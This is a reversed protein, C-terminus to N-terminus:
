QRNYVRTLEQRTQQLRQIVIGATRKLLFYGLEHNTDCEKRLAEGHLFVAKVATVARADFRWYYPPFLWSWGLVEGGGLTQLRVRNNDTDVSELVVDGSQILYFRNAPDGERFIWDGPSFQAALAHPLLQRCLEPPMGSLFPHSQLIGLLEEPPVAGQIGSVPADSM